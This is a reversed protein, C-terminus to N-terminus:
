TNQLINNSYIMKKQVPANNPTLLNYLKGREAACDRSASPFYVNRSMMMMIVLILTAVATLFAVAVTMALIFWMRRIIVTNSHCANAVEALGQRSEKAQHMCKECSRQKPTPPPASEGGIAQAIDDYSDDANTETKSEMEFYINEEGTEAINPDM